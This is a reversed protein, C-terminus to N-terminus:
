IMSLLSEGKGMCLHVSSVLALVHQHSDGPQADLGYALNGHAHYGAGAHGFGCCPLYGHLHESPSVQMACLLLISTGRVCKVVMDTDIHLRAVLRAVLELM